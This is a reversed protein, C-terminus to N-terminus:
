QKYFGEDQISIYFRMFDYMSPFRQLLSGDSRSICYCQGLRKLNQGRWWEEPIYISNKLWYLRSILFALASLKTLTIFSSLKTLTIFSKKLFMQRILVVYKKIVDHIYNQYMANHLQMIIYFKFVSICANGFLACLSIHKMRQLGTSAM